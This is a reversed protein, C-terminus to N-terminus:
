ILPQLLLATQFRPGHSCWGCSECWSLCRLLHSFATIKEIIMRRSLECFCPLPAVMNSSNEGDKHISPPISVLSEAPEEDYKICYRRHITNALYLYLNNNYQLRGRGGRKVFDM